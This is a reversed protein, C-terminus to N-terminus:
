FRQRHRQLVKRSPFSDRSFGSPAACRRWPAVPASCPSSTPASGGGGDNSIRLSQCFENSDDSFRRLSFSFCVARPFIAESTSFNSFASPIKTHTSPFDARFKRSACFTKREKKVCREILFLVKPNWEGCTACISPPDIDTNLSSGPDIDMPEDLLPFKVQEQFIFTFIFSGLLPSVWFNQLHNKKEVVNIVLQQWVMSSSVLFWLTIPPSTM